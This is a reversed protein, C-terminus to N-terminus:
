VHPMCGSLSRCVEKLNPYSDAGSGSKSVGMVLSPLGASPKEYETKGGPFYLSLGKETVERDEINMQQFVDEVLERPLTTTEVSQCCLMDGRWVIKKTRLVAHLIQRTVNLAEKHKWMVLAPMVLNQASSPQQGGPTNGVDQEIYPQFPPFSNFLFAVRLPM